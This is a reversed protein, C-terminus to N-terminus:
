QYNKSVAIITRFVSEIEKPQLISIETCRRLVELERANSVVPLSRSRKLKGIRSAVCTRRELLSVIKLDIDDIDARLDGIDKRPRNPPWPKPDLKPM